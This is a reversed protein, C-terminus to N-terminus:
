ASQAPTAARICPLDPSMPGNDASLLESRLIRVESPADIGIRVQSGRADLLTLVINEGIHIQQGVKRSLVLV